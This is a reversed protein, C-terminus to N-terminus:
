NSAFYFKVLEKHMNRYNLYDNKHIPNNKHMYALLLSSMHVFTYQIYTQMYM